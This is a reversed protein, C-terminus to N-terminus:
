KLAIQFILTIGLLSVVSTVALVLFATLWSSMRSKPSAQEQPAQEEQNDPTVSDDSDSEVDYFCHTPATLLRHDVESANIERICLLSAERRTIKKEGSSSLCDVINKSSITGFIHVQHYALIVRLFSLHCRSIMDKEGETNLGSMITHVARREVHSFFRKTSSRNLMHSVSKIDFELQSFSLPCPNYVHYAFDMDSRYLNGVRKKLVFEEFMETCTNSFLCGENGMNTIAFFLNSIGTDKNLPEALSCLVVVYHIFNIAIILTEYDHGLASPSLEIDKFNPFGNFFRYFDRITQIKLFEKDSWKQLDFGSANELITIMESYRPLCVTTINNISPEITFIESIM